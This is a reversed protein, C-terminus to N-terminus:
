ELCILFSVYDSLAGVLSDDAESVASLLRSVFAYCSRWWRRNIGDHCDCGITFGATIDGLHDNSCFPIDPRPVNWYLLISYRQPHPEPDVLHYAPPSPM